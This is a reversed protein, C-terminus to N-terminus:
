EIASRSFRSSQIHGCTHCIEFTEGPYGSECDFERGGCKRCKSNLKRAIRELQEVSFGIMRTFVKRLNEHFVDEYKEGDFTMWDGLGEHLVTKGRPTHVHYETYSYPDWGPGENGTKIRVSLRPHKFLLQEM